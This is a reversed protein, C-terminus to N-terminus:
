LAEMAQKLHEPSLHAYRETLKTTSHGLLDRVVYLDTGNMVLRSAFDHRVDHLRFDSLGARETLSSWARNIQKLRKGSLSGPCVLASVGHLQPSHSAVRMRQSRLGSLHEALTPHLPIHRAKGSKTTEGRVNIQEYAFDIDSWELSFVESRRLGTWYAITIVTRAPERTTKLAELFREREKPDRQGLWRVRKNDPEKYPKFKPASSILGDECASNLLARLAAWDRNFTQKTIGAKFRRNSVRKIDLTCLESMDKDLLEAWANLIRSKTINGSRATSLHNPYYDEDLYARITRLAAAAKEAREAEREQKELRKDAAPDIGFARAARRADAPSMRDADGVKVSQKTGGPPRYEYFWTRSGSPQVRVCLGPQKADWARYRTKRPELAAIDGRSNVTIRDAM